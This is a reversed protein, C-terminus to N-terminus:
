PFLFCNWLTSGLVCAILCFVVKLNFLLWGSVLVEIFKWHAFFSQEMVVSMWCFGPALSWILLWYVGSPRINLTWDQLTWSLSQWSWSSRHNAAKSFGVSLLYSRDSPQDFALPYTCLDLGIWDTSVGWPFGRCRSPHNWRCHHCPNKGYRRQLQYRRLSSSRIWSLWYRCFRDEQCSRAQSSFSGGASLASLRWWISADSWTRLQRDCGTFWSREIKCWLHLPGHGLLISFAAGPTFGLEKWM